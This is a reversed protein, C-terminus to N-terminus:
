HPIRAFLLGEFSTGWGLAYRLWSWFLILGFMLSTLALDQGFFSFRERIQGILLPIYRFIESVVVFVIAGVIGYKMFSLPLGILLVGFKLGFSYAGYLPRGFGLLTNENIYSLMSVWKGILMVSLMWGADQYRSDYLIRILLDAAAVLVSVGLAAVLLFRARVSKLQQLLEARPLDSHTAIFPFIVTYNIRGVLGSVAETITRAIGYVGLLEIPIVKGFYLNDFSYSLFFITSSVFLWKGFSFVDKAYKKSIYFKHRLEPVLLYSGIASAASSVLGGLVLAWVTPSFYAYIIQSVATIAEVILQFVNLKAIQLRRQLFAVGLSALGGLVFSVGVVPLIWALVPAHYLRAFPLAAAICCPLLLFGRVLRLSWVTNYFKPSEANKNLVLSQGFGFDSLLEIGNQLTYVIVLIGFLEPALLRTLVVSSVVRLSQSLGFIGVTWAVGKVVTIPSIKM